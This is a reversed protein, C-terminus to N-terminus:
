VDPSTGPHQRGRATDADVETKEQGTTASPRVRDGLFHRLV